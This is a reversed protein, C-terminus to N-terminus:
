KAVTEIYRPADASEDLASRLRRVIANISQDFDVITDNPWLRLRIDARSVVEGPRELLLLLLQASQDPLRVRIGRTRLEGTHADLEFPGFRRVRVTEMRFVRRNYSPTDPFRCAHMRQSPTPRRRDATATCACM